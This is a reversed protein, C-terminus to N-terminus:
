YGVSLNWCSKVAYNGWWRWRSHFIICWLRMRLSESYVTSYGCCWSTECTPCINISTNGFVLSELIYSASANRFDWMLSSYNLVSLEESKPPIRHCKTATFLNNGKKLDWPEGMVYLGLLQSLHKRYPNFVLMTFEKHWHRANCFLEIVIFM